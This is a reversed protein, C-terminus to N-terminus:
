YLRRRCGCGCIRWCPSRGSARVNRGCMIRLISTVRIMCERHHKQLSRYAGSDRLKEMHHLTCEPKVQEQEEEDPDIEPLALVHYSRDRTYSTGQLLSWPSVLVYPRILEHDSNDLEGRLFRCYLPMTTAPQCDNIDM